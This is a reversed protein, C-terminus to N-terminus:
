LIYITIKVVDLKVGGMTRNANTHSYRNIYIHEVKALSLLTRRLPAVYLLRFPICADCAVHYCQYCKSLKYM